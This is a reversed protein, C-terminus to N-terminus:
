HMPYDTIGSLKASIISIYKFDVVNFFLFYIKNKPFEAGRDSM